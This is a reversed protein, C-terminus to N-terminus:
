RQRVIRQQKFTNMLLQQVITLLNQMLWYLVVGTPFEKFIWGMVLPMIYFMRKQAPDVTTPTMAVTSSTVRSRSPRSALGVAAIM